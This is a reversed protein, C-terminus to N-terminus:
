KNACVYEEEEREEISSLYEAWKQLGRLRLWEARWGDGFQEMVSEVIQREERGNVGVWALIPSFVQVYRGDSALRWTRLVARQSLPSPAEVTIVQGPLSAGSAVTWAAAPVLVITAVILVRLCARCRTLLFM